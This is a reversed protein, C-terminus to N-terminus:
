SLSSLPVNQADPFRVLTTSSLKRLQRRAGRARVLVGPVSLERTPYPTPGSRLPKGTESGSSPM